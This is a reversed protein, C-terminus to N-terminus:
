KNQEPIKVNRTFSANTSFDRNKYQKKKHRGIVIENCWPYSANHVKQLYKSHAIVAKLLKLYM